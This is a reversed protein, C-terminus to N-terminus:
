SVATLFDGDGQSTSAQQYPCTQQKHRLDLM